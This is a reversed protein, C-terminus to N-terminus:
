IFIKRYALDEERLNRWDRKYNTSGWDKTERANMLAAGKVGSM